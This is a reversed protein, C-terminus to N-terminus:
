RSGAAGFAGQRRMVAAAGLGAVAIAALLWIPGLAIGTAPSGADIGEPTRPLGGSVLLNRLEDGGRHWGGQSRETGFFPQGAPTFTVAGGDAYPYVHQRVIDADGDPGPMSFSLTYRPGLEGEPRSGALESPHGFLARFIGSAEALRGLKTGSGPEGSGTFAIGDDLGPGTLTASEAGKAAAPGASACAAVAATAVLMAIRSRM